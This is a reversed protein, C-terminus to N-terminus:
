VGISRNSGDNNSKNCLLWIGERTWPIEERFVRSLIRKSLTGGRNYLTNWLDMVRFREARRVFKCFSLNMPFPINGEASAIGGFVKIGSSCKIGPRM